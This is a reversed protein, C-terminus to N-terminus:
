KDFFDSLAVSRFLVSLASSIFCQVRMIYKQIIPFFTHIRFHLLACFVGFREHLPTVPPGKNAIIEADSVVGVVLQDGLARAQRLANCHGYHMMDFCGDMYVRIPRKKKKKPLAFRLGLVSLGLVVGGVLWTAVFRSSQQVNESHGAESGM